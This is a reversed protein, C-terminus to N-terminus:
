KSYSGIMRQVQNIAQHADHAVVNQFHIASSASSTLEVAAIIAAAVAILLLMVLITRRIARGM